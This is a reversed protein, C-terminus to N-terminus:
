SAAATRASPILSAPRGYAAPYVGDEVDVAELYGAAAAVSPFVLLPEDAAVFLAGDPVEETHDFDSARTTM